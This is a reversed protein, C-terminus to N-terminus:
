EGNQYLLVGKIYLGIGPTWSSYDFRQIMIKNPGAADAGGSIGTDVIGSFMVPLITGSPNTRIKIPPTIYVEPSTGALYDIDILCSVFLVVLKGIVMYEGYSLSTSIVMPSKATIVPTYSKFSRAQRYFEELNM